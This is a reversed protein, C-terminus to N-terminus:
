ECLQKALDDLGLETTSWQSSADSHKQYGEFCVGDRDVVVRCAEQRFETNEELVGPETENFFACRCDWAEVKYLDETKVLEAWRRWRVVDNACVNVKAHTPRNEFSNEEDFHIELEFTIVM